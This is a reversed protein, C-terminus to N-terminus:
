RCGSRGSQAAGDRRRAQQQGAKRDGDSQAADIHHVQPAEQDQESHAPIEAEKAARRQHEFAM